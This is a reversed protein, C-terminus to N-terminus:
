TPFLTPLNLITWPRSQLLLHALSPSSPPLSYPLRHGYHFFSHSTSLAFTVSGSGLALLPCPRFFSLSRAPPSPWPSPLCAASPDSATVPQASPRLPPLAPRRARPPRRATLPVRPPRSPRPRPAPQGRPLPRRLRIAALPPLPEPSRTALPPGPPARTSPTDRRPFPM